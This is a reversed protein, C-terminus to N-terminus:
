RTRRRRTCGCEGSSCRAPVSCTTIGGCCGARGAGGRGASGWRRAAVRHLALTVPVADSLTMNIACVWDPDHEALWEELRREYPAALEEVGSRLAATEAPSLEALRAVGDRTRTLQAALEERGWERPAWDSVELWAPYNGAAGGRPFFEWKDPRWSFGLDAAVPPEILDEAFGLQLVNRLVTLLGSVPLGDCCVVAWKM